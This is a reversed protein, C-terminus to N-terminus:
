GGFTPVNLGPWEGPPGCSPYTGVAEGRLQSGSDRPSRSHLCCDGFAARALVHRVSTGDLGDVAMSRYNFAAGDGLAYISEPWQQKRARSRTRPCSTRQPRPVVRGTCAPVLCILFLFVRRRAMAVLEQSWGSLYTRVLWPNTSV